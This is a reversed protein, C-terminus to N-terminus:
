EFLKKLGKLAEDELKKKVADEVKEGDEVKVGLEKEIKEAVKAKVKEQAAEKEEKFNLDIAKELDASIKPNGWGGRIRVPIALGKGDRATIAKPTFLYDIDQAGLGVRGEGTATILPLSLLLDKNTLNGGAMTFTAGLSDFVTTGGSNVGSRMLSDLDIGEITGRGMSVGGKGELSHMIADVSNGVALFTLDGQAKGTFRRVGILDGLLDKMEVGSATVNGGVSLGSRNNAVVQGAVTGQYGALQRLNVVARSRDVTALVQAAGFSLGAVRVGEASLSVEGDFAGLASADIKDRSWGSGAAPPATGGTDTLGSLDLVGAALRATVVPKAGGLAVDAAGSLRNQDLVVAMDRLSLGLASTLTLDATLGAKRGFGAPLDIGGVGLAALFAATDSLEASVRGQAQPQAGIRGEFTAKGGRAEALVTVTSLAGDILAGLDGLKGSISLPSAGYSLKGSFEAGGRYEPWRLDFDVASVQTQAGTEHDVYRLSGNSILARDLSLALANGAGAPQGSPAVGAVGLEWNVRGDKARELLIRPRVAELGTIKVAGRILSMLDVGVKLSDAELMPGAGSWAANAITLAGTSVGLVPYYSVQTEGSLVVERGTQARIQDVAVRAIRDGPLLLLSVAAVGILVVVFGILRFIWRM